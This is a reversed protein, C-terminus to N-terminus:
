LMSLVNVVLLVARNSDVINRFFHSTNSPWPLLLFIEELQNLTLPVISRHLLQLFFLSIYGLPPPCRLPWPLLCSDEQTNLGRILPVRWPCFNASAPVVKIDRRFLKMTAKRWKCLKVYYKNFTTFLDIFNFM